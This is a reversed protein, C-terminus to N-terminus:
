LDLVEKVAILATDILAIDNVTGQSRAADLKSRLSGLQAIAATETDHVNGDEDAEGIVKSVIEACREQIHHTYPTYTNFGEFLSAEVSRRQEQKLEQITRNEIVFCHDNLGSASAILVPSHTAVVFSCGLQSSFEGLIHPLQRQWAVHLSIEPEDLLVTTKRQVNAVIKIVITLIQQEGSSLSDFVLIEPSDRRALALKYAGNPLASWRKRDAKEENTAARASLPYVDAILREWHDSTSNMGVPVLFHRPRFGLTDLAMEFCTLRAPVRYIDKVMDGLEGLARRVNPGSRFTRAGAYTFHSKLPESHPSRDFRDTSGFSVGYSSRKELALAMALDRMALSKGAGNNGILYVSTSERDRRLCSLIPNIEVDPQWSRDKKQGVYDQARLSYKQQEMKRLSVFRIFGPVSSFETALAEEVFAIIRRPAGTAELQSKTLHGGEAWSRLLEGALSACALADESKSNSSLHRADMYVIRDLIRPFRPGFYWLSVTTSATAGLSNFDIVARLGLNEVLERRHAEYYKTPLRDKGGVVVVMPSHLEQRLTALGGLTNEDPFFMSANGYASRAFRFTADIVSLRARSASDSQEFRINLAALRLNRIFRYSERLKPPLGSLFNPYNYSRWDPTGSLAFVEGSGPQSESVGDYLEALPRALHAVLKHHLQHSPILRVFLKYFLADVVYNREATDLDALEHLLMGAIHRIAPVSAGPVESITSESAQMANLLLHNVEALKNACDDSGANVIDSVLRDLENAHKTPLYATTRSDDRLVLAILLVFAIYELEHESIGKAKAFKAIAEHIRAARLAGESIM